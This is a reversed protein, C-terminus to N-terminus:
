KAEEEEEMKKALEEVMPASEKAAELPESKIEEEEIEEGKRTKVGELVMNFCMAKLESILVNFSSPVNPSKIEQGKVISEYAAARGAVDDSKITLMEQLAYSAGYGELAWVEMEGFRQGGFQAKGGLPQQTILSYPGISRMHIKDEVMHILKLIYMYGVTIPQPFKEGTKGDYLDFKGTEPCGAKTLEEHIEDESAGDLAPTVAQYGLKKAAMGLHVELVQGLNMRSAISLPNLIIDVPTGDALFPMEEEPLILTIVGKNGYRGALKDGVQIPRSYTVEVQIRKIIGPELADGNERSFVKVRIVRGRKGHPVLLSTDKVDKSKEGFIKRLLMEEPTFEEEGKPSIKGVLIDGPGVEAGIRVVGDGDLNKLKEESVNPIDSTTKEPGLKTDKVDCVFDEVHLSTFVDDKLLRESIILGDEYNYGRWPLFAVLLNKGISLEGNSVGGSDALLEDKVVKQGVTVRPIQSIATYQNSRVFYKLNFKHKYGKSDEVVIHRSDCETVKGDCPSVLLLHSNKIVEKEIGTAVLPPEPHVCPVAQRQMNSGMLARNADNHELFPILSASVSLIEQPAVDIYDVKSTEIIGPEGYIRAEVTKQSFKGDKDHPSNAQAIIHKEEAFANLYEIKNLIRGKEVKFYPAELFGFDNLSAWTALHNVVGVNQGEPTQIPCIKGYHSPQVDRVDIGARERMLGGPGMASLRRKHELEALPNVNDMFQSLQGQTFFEKIASMIPRSNVLSKVEAEAIDTTSMKDRVIREVRMFARRLSNELLEDMTRVRRNGLHDVNDPQANPNNNDDILKALITIIDQKTLVRDNITIKKPLPLSLRQCTKWRGVETLDYRKPNFFLNHFFEKASEYTVMDGPRLIKFIYVLADENTETVDKKFTEKLYDIDGKKINERFTKKIEEEDMGLAKLLVTVPVKRRRDIRAWIVGDKETEFELWAGRNPIVKACFFKKDGEDVATFIVGVSRTLQSVIVREIGNLIFTGKDTMKPFYCLLIEDEKVQKTPLIELRVKAWLPVEYSLNNEKAEDSSIKPEDLKCDLFWLKYTNEQYDKIPSIEEFLTRLRTFFKQYADKQISLLDPTKYAFSYRSFNKQKVM